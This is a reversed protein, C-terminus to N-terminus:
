AEIKGAAAAAQIKDWNANVQAPTMKAIQEKTFTAPANGLDIGGSPVAHSGRLYPKAKVLGDLLSAVNVPQGTEDFEITSGDVFRIADEPDAFGLKAAAAITAGRITAQRVSSERQEALARHEDREKALAELQAQSSARLDELAKEAAKRQERERALEAVPVTRPAPKDPEAAPPTEVPEEAPAPTEIEDSM